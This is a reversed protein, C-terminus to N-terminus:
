KKVAALIAKIGRDNIACGDLKLGWLVSELVDYRSTNGAAFKDLLGQEYAVAALETSRIIPIAKVKKKLAAITNDDVTIKTRLKKEMITALHRPHEVLERTVREDMVLASADVSSAATLAAIEGYHVLTLGRGKVRFCNNALRLVDLTEQKTKSDELVEFVGRTILDQVQLAEFRFKKTQLPDVVLEGKVAEPLYFSGGFAKKLPEFLWLLNNMTLSIVPGADFVLSKM